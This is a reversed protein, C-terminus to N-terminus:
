PSRPGFLASDTSAPVALTPVTHRHVATPWAAPINSLPPLPAFDAQPDGSIHPSSISDSRRRMLKAYVLGCANCLTRPGSPGRRWELTSTTGCALCAQSGSDQFNSATESSTGAALNHEFFSQLPTNPPVLPHARSLQAEAEASKAAEEALERLVEWPALMGPYPLDSDDEEDGVESSAVAATSWTSPRDARDAAAEAMGRIVEWPAVLPTEPNSQRPDVAPSAVSCFYCTFQQSSGVCHLHSWNKCQQCKLTPLLGPNFDGCICRFREDLSVPHCCIPCIETPSPTDHTVVVSDALSSALTIEERLYGACRHASYRDTLAMRKLNLSKLALDFEVEAAVVALSQDEKLSPRWVYERRLSSPSASDTPTMSEVVTSDPALFPPSSTSLIAQPYTDVPSREISHKHLVRNASSLVRHCLDNFIDWSGKSNADRIPLNMDQSPSSNISIVFRDDVDLFVDFNKADMSHLSIGQVQLHNIGASLGGVMKFGLNVSRTLDDKLAAALPGEANMWHVHKYAIFQTLSEESSIGEIRLINPHLLGKTLKLTAELRKRAYATRNFVKVILARGKSKGSHIFYGPGSGIERTLTLNKERLIKIDGEAQPEPKRRKNSSGETSSVWGDEIAARYRKKSPYLHNHITHNVLNGHVNNYVGEGLTFNDANSIFAM